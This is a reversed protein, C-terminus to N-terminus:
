PPPWSPPVDVIIVPDLQISPNAESIITYKFHGKALPRLRQTAAAYALDPRAFPGTGDFVILFRRGNTAVFRVEDRSHMLLTEPSVSISSDEVTIFITHSQQKRRTQRLWSGSSQVGTQPAFLLDANTCAGLVLAAAGAGMRRLANRRNM